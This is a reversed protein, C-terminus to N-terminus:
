TRFTHGEALVRGGGSVRYAYTTGAALGTLSAAHRTSSAPDVVASDYASGAGFDVRGDVRRSTQWAITVTTTTTNIIYPGRTLALAGEWAGLLAWLGLSALGCAGATAGIWRARM